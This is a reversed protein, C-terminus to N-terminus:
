QAENRSQNVEGVLMETLSSLSYPTTQREIEKLWRRFGVHAFAFGEATLEALLPRFTNPSKRFTAVWDQRVLEQETFVTAIAEAILLQSQRYTQRKSAALMFPVDWFPLHGIEKQSKM